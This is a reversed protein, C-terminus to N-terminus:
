NMGYDPKEEVAQALNKLKEHDGKADLRAKDGDNLKVFFDKYASFGISAQAKAREYLDEYTEDGAANDNVVEIKLPKVNYLIRKTKSASLQIDVGNNIHSMHSIRIGGVKKGGFIVNPDGFLTMSKGVYSQAEIGWIKVMVRRMSKCPKFPKGGDGEYHISVPQADNMNGTGKVSTVTINKPGVLFDDYNMQDSKPAITKSMDIM